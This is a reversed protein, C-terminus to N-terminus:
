MIAFLVVLEGQILHRSTTYVGKFNSECIKCRGFILFYFKGEKYVKALKFTLCCQLHTLEWFHEAIIHSWEGKPLTMYTRVSTNKPKITEWEEPSLTM